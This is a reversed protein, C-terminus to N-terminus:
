HAAADLIVAAVEAPKSLMALHSASVITTKAHITQAMTKELEPNIARDDAAVIYWSPKTKWAAATIVGGLAKVNTPAQSAYLDARESMPLDQAFDSFFGDKTIKLFGSADPRVEAGLPAPPASAGLSGASQGADPAFAAVYVLGTVKPDVGAETIVAGGYSHGVLIVPGTELAIARQVTAADDELSTLPLQVATVNLGKATLLPIVKSWSSGDAWAGHVLIVNVTKEAAAAPTAFIPSTSLAAAGLGLGLCLNKISLM